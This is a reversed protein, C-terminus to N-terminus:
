ADRDRRDIWGRTSINLPQANVASMVTRWLIQSATDTYLGSPINFDVLQTAYQTYVAYLNAFGGPLPPSDLQLDIAGAGNSQQIFGTIMPSVVIGPPVTLTAAMYAGASGGTTLNIDAFKGGTWYFEDGKQFFKNLSPTSSIRVSGLRRKLSYGSPMTPAAVSQSALRAVTGDIKGIAFVHWWTPGSFTGADRGNAGTATFDITGAPLILNAIDTDDRCAGAAVDLKSAATVTSNSLTLGVLYSRPLSAATSGVWHTGNWTYVVGTGPIFQQGLTPANPFDLAAM